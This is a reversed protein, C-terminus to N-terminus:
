LADKFFELNERSTFYINEGELDYVWAMDADYTSLSAKINEEPWQANRTLVFNVMEDWYTYDYAYNILSSSKLKIIKDFILSHEEKKQQLFLLHQKIRFNYYLSFLLIYSLLFLIFIFTIKQIFSINRLM